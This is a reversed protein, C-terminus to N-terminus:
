LDEGIELLAIASLENMDSYNPYVGLNLLYVFLECICREPHIDNKTTISM